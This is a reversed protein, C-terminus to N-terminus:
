PLVEEAEAEARPAKRRDAFQFLVNEIEMVEVRGEVGWIKKAAVQWVKSDDKLLADELAKLLNSNDPTTQMPQGDMEARKKNSWSKPMPCVFTVAFSYPLEWTGAQLRLEDCYARYKLVCPRKAWVDKQSMRPKAVPTVEFVKKLM